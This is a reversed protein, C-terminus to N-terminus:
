SKKVERVESILTGRALRTELVDGVSALRADRLLTGDTKNLTISYGRQLTALPSIADLARSLIALKESQTALLSHMCYELRQALQGARGAFLQLRSRPSHQQLRALLQRSETQWHALRQRWGRELRQQLEDLRQAQQQLRRGPHCQQARRTLWQLRQELDSM